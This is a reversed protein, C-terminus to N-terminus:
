GPEIHPLKEAIEACRKCVVLFLIRSFVVYAADGDDCRECPRMIDEVYNSNIRNM